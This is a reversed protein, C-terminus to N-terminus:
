FVLFMIVLLVVVFALLAAFLVIRYDIYSPDAIREGGPQPAPPVLQQIAQNAGLSRDPLTAMASAADGDTVTTDFPRAEADRETMAYPAHHHDFATAEFRSDPQDILGDAILASPPLSPIEIAVLAPPSEGRSERAPSTRLSVPITRAFEDVAHADLGPASRGNHGSAQRAYAAPSLELQTSPDRREFSPDDVTPIEFGGNQDHADSSPSELDPARLTGGPPATREYLAETAAISTPSPTLVTPESLPEHRAVPTKATTEGILVAARPDGLGLHGLEADFDVQTPGDDLRNPATRDSPLEPEYLLADTPDRRDDDFETPSTRNRERVLMTHNPDGFRGSSPTGAIPTPDSPDGGSPPGEIRCEAPDQHVPEFIGDPNWGSWDSGGSSSTLSPFMQDVPSHQPRPPLTDQFLDSSDDGPDLSDGHAAASGGGSGNARHSPDSEGEDVSEANPDTDALARRVLAQSIEGDTRPETTEGESDLDM